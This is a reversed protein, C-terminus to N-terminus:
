QGARSTDAVGDGWTFQGFLPKPKNQKQHKQISSKSISKALQEMLPEFNVDILGDHESELMEYESKDAEAIIEYGDSEPAVIFILIGLEQIKEVLAGAQMVQKDVLLGTELQEDSLFVVVRHCGPDARWPMDLAFDLGIFTCEDWNAELANLSAKFDVISTTFLKDSRGSGGQNFGFNHKEEYLARWADEEYVTSAQVVVGGGKSPIARHAVYDFRLDWNSLQPDITNLSEILSAINEKLKDFCPTMSGSADLCFVIDAKRSAM